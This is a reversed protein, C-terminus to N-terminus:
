GGWLSSFLEAFYSKHKVEDISEIELFKPYISGWWNDGQGEEIVVLFLLTEENKLEKDNYTKNYLTSNSFSVKANYKENLDNKFENLSLNINNIYKNKNENYNEYLFDRVILVVEEKIKLDCEENSAPVVRVRIESNSTEKNIFVFFLAIIIFIIILYKRKKKM